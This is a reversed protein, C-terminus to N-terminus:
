NWVRDKDKYVRAGMSGLTPKSNKSAIGVINVSEREEPFGDWGSPYKEIFIIEEEDNYKELIKKLEKVKM